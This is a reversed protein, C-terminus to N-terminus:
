APVSLPQRTVAAATEPEGGDGALEGRGPLLRVLALLLFFMDGSGRYTLHPDFVMLVAQSCTSAALATAIVGAPDARQAHRWCKKLVAAVFALYSALLPIGGGWLLWTYGSEIWVYGFQRTDTAIRASPRVGLIWNNDSFLVPWFYTRLNYLRNVWSVPLGTASNFGGLRTQIVPWLVVGGIVAVPVAYAALRAAKTLVLLAAFAVILGILTSFEAAAIVGLAFVAALGGLWLRRPYGRVLMAIAIGLNLIALDAVAAPLGLLSSGRGNSLPATVDNPAYYKALLGPVGFKHLAQLMGIVCVVAAAAMSLQLCRLAQERTKVVSRVIVYEALLKWVVICYLLDDETIARQRVVMMGLPLVSSTIGLAIITADVRDIAPRRLGGSRLGWLWRLGIALGFLVILAENPRLVPVVAGANIGVILPTLLVLAYAAIVPRAMTLGITALVAVALLAYKVKFTLLAGVGIPALLLAADLLRRWVAPAMAEIADAWALRRAALWGNFTESGLRAAGSATV